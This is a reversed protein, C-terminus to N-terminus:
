RTTVAGGAALIEKPVTRGNEAATRGTLTTTTMGPGRVTPPGRGRSIAIRGAKRVEEHTTTAAEVATKPSAKTATDRKTKGAITEIEATIGRRIEVRGTMVARTTAGNEATHVDEAKATTGTSKKRTTRSRTGAETMRTM